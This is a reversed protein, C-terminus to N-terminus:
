GGVKIVVDERRCSLMLGKLRSEALGEIVKSWTKPTVHVIQKSLQWFTRKKLKAMLSVKWQGTELSVEIVSLKKQLVVLFEEYSTDTELAISDDGSWTVPRKDNADLSNTRLVEIRLPVSTSRTERQSSLTSPLPPDGTECHPPTKISRRTTLNPIVNILSSDM